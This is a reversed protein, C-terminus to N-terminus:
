WTLLLFYRLNVLAPESNMIIKWVSLMMM